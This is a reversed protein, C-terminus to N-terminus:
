KAKAYFYSFVNRVSNFRPTPECHRCLVPCLSNTRYSFQHLYYRRFLRFENSLWFPMGHEFHCGFSKRCRKEIWFKVNYFNETINAWMNQCAMLHGFPKCVFVFYFIYIGTFRHFCSVDGSVPGPIQHISLMLSYTFIWCHGTCKYLKDVSIWIEIVHIIYKTHKAQKWSGCVWVCLCFKLYSISLICETSINCLSSAYFIAGLQHKRNFVIWLVCGEYVKFAHM